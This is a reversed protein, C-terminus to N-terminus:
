LLVNNFRLSYKGYINWTESDCLGGFSLWVILVANGVLVPSMYDGHCCALVSHVSLFPAIFDITQLKISKYLWLAKM